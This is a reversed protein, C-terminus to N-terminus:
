RLRYTKVLARDAAWRRTGGALSQWDYWKASRTSQPNTHSVVSHAAGGCRDGGPPGRAVGRMRSCCRRASYCGTLSGRGAAPSLVYESLRRAGRRPFGRKLPGFFCGITSGGRVNCAFKKGPRGGRSDDAPPVAKKLPHLGQEHLRGAAWLSANCAFAGRPSDAAEGLLRGGELPHLGREDPRWFGARKHVGWLHANRVFTEGRPAEGPLRGGKPPRLGREGPQRPAAQKHVGWLPPPTGACPTLDPATPLAPPRRAATRTSFGGIVLFRMSCL